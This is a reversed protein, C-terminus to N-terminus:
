IKTKRSPNDTALLENNPKKKGFNNESIKPALKSPSLRIQNFNTNSGPTAIFIRRINKANVFFLGPINSDLQRLTKV